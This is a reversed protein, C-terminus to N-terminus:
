APRCRQARGVLVAGRGPTSGTWRQKRPSAGRAGPGPARVLAFAAPAALCLVGAALFAPLGEGYPLFASGPGATLLVLPPSAQARARDSATSALLASVPLLARRRM